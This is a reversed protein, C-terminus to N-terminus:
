VSTIGFYRRLDNNQSGHSAASRVRAINFFAVFANKLLSSTSCFELDPAAPFCDIWPRSAAGIGGKLPGNGFGEPHGFSGYRAVPSRQAPQRHSQEASQRMGHSTIGAQRRLEGPQSGQKV